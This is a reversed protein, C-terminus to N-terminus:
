EEEKKKKARKLPEKKKCSGAAPTNVWWGKCDKFRQFACLTGDECYVRMLEGYHAKPCDLEVKM